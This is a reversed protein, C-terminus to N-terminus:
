RAGGRRPRPRKWTAASPREDGPELAWEFVQRYWAGEDGVLRWGARGLADVLAAHAEYAEAPFDGAPWLFLPSREVVWNRGQLGFAVAYFDAVQGDRRGYISCTLTRGGQAVPPQEAVPRLNPRPAASRTGGLTQTRSEVPATPKPKASSAPKPIRAPGAHKARNSPKAAGAPKAPGAPKPLKHLKVAAPPKAPRTSPKKPAASPKSKPKPARPPKGAGDSEKSKDAGPSPSSPMTTVGQPKRHIYVAALTPQPLADRIAELRGRLETPRRAERSLVGMGVALTLLLLGLVLTVELLPFSDDDSAANSSDEGPAPADARSRDPQPADNDSQSPDPEPALPYEEWLETPTQTEQAVAAPGAALAWSCALVLVVLPLRYRPPRPTM